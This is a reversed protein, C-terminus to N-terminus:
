SMHVPASKLQGVKVEDLSAPGREDLWAMRAERAEIDIAPFVGYRVSTMRKPADEADFITHYSVIADLVIMPVFGIARSARIGEDLDAKSIRVGFAQETETGPMLSPMPSPSKEAEPLTVFDTTLSPVCSAKSSISVRLAPTKGSNTLRICMTVHAFKDTRSCRTVELGVGVWARLDVEAADKSHKALETAAAASQRAVELADDADDRAAIALRLARWTFYLSILLGLASIFALTAQVFSWRAAAQAADASTWAACLESDRRPKDTECPREKGHQEMVTSTTPLRAPMPPHGTAAHSITHSSLAAPLLTLAIAGATRRLRQRGLKVKTTKQM